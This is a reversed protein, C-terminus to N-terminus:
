ILNLPFTAHVGMGDYVLALGDKPVFLYGATGHVKANNMDASSPYDSSRMNSKPVYSQHSHFTAVTNETITIDEMELCRVEVINLLYNSVDTIGPQCACISELRQKLIGYKEITEKSQTLEFAIYEAYKNALSTDRKFYQLNYETSNMLSNLCYHGLIESVVGDASQCIKGFVYYYFANIQSNHNFSTLEELLLFSDENDSVFNENFYISRALPNVKKNQIIRSQKATDYDLWYAYKKPFNCNSFFIIAFVFFLILVLKNKIMKM